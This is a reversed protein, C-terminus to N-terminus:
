REWLEKAGNPYYLVMSNGSIAYKGLPTWTSGDTSWYLVNASTKWKGRTVGGQGSGGTASGQRNQSSFLTQGAGYAFSGDAKIVCYIESTIAFSGGNGGRIVNSNTKRWKGVLHLDRSVTDTGPRGQPPQPTRGGPTATSGTSPQTSSSTAKATITNVVVSQNKENAAFVSEKGLCFCSILKSDLVLLYLRGKLKEGTQPNAGAYNLVASEGSTLKQTTAQGSAKLMPFMNTMLLQMNQLVRPDNPRTIGAFQGSLPMGSIVMAVAPFQGAPTDAPMLTSVLGQTTVKWGQPSRYSIGVPHNQLPLKSNADAAPTKGVTPTGPPVAVAPPKATGPPTVKGSPSVAPAPKEVDFPNVAKPKVRSMVITSKGSKFTLKDAKLTATFPFKSGQFSFDGILMDGKAMAVFGFKQEGRTITGMFRGLQTAAQIEISAGQGEFKGDFAVEGAHAIVGTSLSVLICCLGYGIKNSEWKM